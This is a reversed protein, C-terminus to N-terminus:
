SLSEVRLTLLNKFKNLFLVPILVDAITLLTLKTGVAAPNAEDAEPKAAKAAAAFIALPNFRPSLSSDM